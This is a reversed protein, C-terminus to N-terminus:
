KREGGDRPEDIQRDDREPLMIKAQKGRVVFKRKRGGVETRSSPVEGERARVSPKGLIYVKGEGNKKSRFVNGEVYAVNGPADAWNGGTAYQVNYATVIV